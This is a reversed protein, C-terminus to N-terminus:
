RGGAEKTEGKTMLSSCDRVRLSEVLMFHGSM